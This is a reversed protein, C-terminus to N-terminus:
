KDNDRSRIVTIRNGTVKTVVVPENKEIFEGETIVDYFNDGIKARGSPRLTKIVIGGNGVSVEAPTESTSHSKSLTASLYPGSIVKSLKPFLYRFFLAIIIVSGMLSIFMIVINKELLEKQWPMEPKPIVFGQLSLIMGIAMLLMGTIGVIGFGPIIFLEVGLLVVGLVILLLETYDALGLIYQGGFVLALCLIGVIGPAGFGPAKLEIYLAAFGIMLLIPAITGIFRVFKESWNQKIRTLTYDTINLKALLEEINNVSALSFGLEIAEQDDMTLLEGRKVITKKSVVGRKQSQTMEQYGLSDVYLVTDKMVIKLVTMESTVMSEALVTHYNNRKALARFKARLPSQFKEGLMKPGENSFSIPACDGITTNQKMVLRSCALAILSGASIARKKVFAVTQGVPVNSLTDVIQLAADVRGGFTDMEIIFLPNEKGKYNNISRGIFYAMGPDVNGSVPIVIVNYKIPKTNSARTFSVLLFVIIVSILKFGYKM